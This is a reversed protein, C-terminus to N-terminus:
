LERLKPPRPTVRAWGYSASSGLASEIATLRNYKALRESRCPAGSKIFPTSLAVALDAITSDTTEGSRHSMVTGFGSATAMGVVSVTESLSGIQNPKILVANAVREEIGRRVRERNTVFLDDGVLMVRGGLKQTLRGWGEFDRQELGDEISFIPYRLCLSEWMDILEETSYCKGCKPLRYIGEGQTFWESAACDLAIKVNETSYGSEMIARCILDLADSDSELDPAYGGEDGVSTSLKRARLIQGLTHYIECGARLAESFSPAGVPAIMFEQIDLSNSAHAGGNLINFMPVPLRTARAGGLYLWLPMSYHAAAARCVALSVSLIANAGLKKKNETSDLEMMRRDIEEGRTALMGVLAPAITNKIASVAGRVGQGFYREAEGDRREVAEYAGTSAGSPVSAVGVSGDVLVVTAEVTPKGRSDIIERGTIKEIIPKILQM